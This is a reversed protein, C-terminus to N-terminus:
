SVARQWNKERVLMGVTVKNFWGNAGLTGKEVRLGERVARAISGADLGLVRCCSSLSTPYESTTDTLWSYADNYQSKKSLDRLAEHLTALYLRREPQAIPKRAPPIVAENAVIDNM